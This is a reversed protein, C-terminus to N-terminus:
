RAAAATAVGATVRDIEARMEDFDAFARYVAAFRVYAIGDLDALAVLVQDGVQSSTVQTNHSERLSSEIDKVLQELRETSVRKGCAPVLSALLKRNNFPEQRGDLKEVWLTPVEAREYTTFRHECSQCERRRRTADGAETVRSELV